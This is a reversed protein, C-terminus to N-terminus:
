SARRSGRSSPADLKERLAEVVFAMLSVENAVCHLKMARHLRRPIRTALQVWAENQETMNEEQNIRARGLSAPPLSILWPRSPTTPHHPPIDSDPMVIHREPTDVTPRASCADAKAPKM